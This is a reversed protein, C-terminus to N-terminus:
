GLEALLRVPERRLSFSSGELGSLCRAQYFYKVFLVLPKFCLLEGRMKLLPAPPSASKSSLLGVEFPSNTLSVSIKCQEDFELNVLAYSCAKFSKLYVWDLCLLIMNLQIM